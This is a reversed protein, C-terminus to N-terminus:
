FTGPRAVSRVAWMFGTQLETKAIALARQDVGPVDKLSELLQGVQEAAEKLSNIGDIEQQSLDRYGNIKRHQNDM